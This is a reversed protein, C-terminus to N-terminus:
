SGTMFSRITAGLALLAALAVWRGIAARDRGQATMRAVVPLGTSVAGYVLHLGDAPPRGGAAAAVGALGALTALALHALVVRDLLRYSRTRGAATLVAVVLLGVVAALVLWALAAHLGAM